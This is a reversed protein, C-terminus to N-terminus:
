AADGLTWRAEVGLWQLLHGPVEPAHPDIKVEAKRLIAHCMGQLELAVFGEAVALFDLDAQSPRYEALVDHADARPAPGPMLELVERM